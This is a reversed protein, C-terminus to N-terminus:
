KIEESSIKCYDELIYYFIKDVYRQLRKEKGENYDEGPHVGDFTNEYSWETRYNGKSDYIKIYVYCGVSDHVLESIECMDIVPYKCDLCNCNKNKDFYYTSM